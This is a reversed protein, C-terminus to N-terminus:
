IRFVWLTGSQPIRFRLRRVGPLRSKWEANAMGCKANSPPTHRQRSVPHTEPAVLPQPFPHAQRQLTGIEGLSQCIPSIAYATCCTQGIPLFFYNVVRRPAQYPGAPEAGKFIAPKFYACFWL